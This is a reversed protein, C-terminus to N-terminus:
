KFLLILFLWLAVYFLIEKVGNIADVIAKTDDTM